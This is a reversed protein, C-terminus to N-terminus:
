SYQTAFEVNQFTITNIEEIDKYISRREAYVEYDELLVAALDEGTIPNNEDTHKLLYQMVIYPKMKQNHKKGHGEKPKKKYEQEEM